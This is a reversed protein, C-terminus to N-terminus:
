APLIKVRGESEHFYMGASTCYEGTNCPFAHLLIYINCKGDDIITVISSPGAIVDPDTVTFDVMFRENDELALLDDTIDIDACIVNESTPFNLTVSGSTFDVEAVVPNFNTCQIIGYVRSYLSGKIVNVGHICKGILVPEQITNGM